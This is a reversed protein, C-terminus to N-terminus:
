SDAGCAIPAPEQTRSYLVLKEVPAERSEPIKKWASMPSGALDVKQISKFLNRNVTAFGVRFFRAVTAAVKCTEM